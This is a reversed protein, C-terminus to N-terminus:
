PVLSSSPLGESPGPSMTLHRLSSAAGQAVNWLVLTFERVSGKPFSNLHVLNVFKKYLGLFQLCIGQPRWLHVQTKCSIYGRMFGWWALVCKNLCRFMRAFRAGPTWSAIFINLTIWFSRLNKIKIERRMQLIFVAFIERRGRKPGSMWLFLGPCAGSEAIDHNENHLDWWDCIKNTERSNPTEDLLEDWSVVSIFDWFLSALKISFIQVSGQLCVGSMLLM